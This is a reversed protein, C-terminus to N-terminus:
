GQLLEVGGNEKDKWTSETREKQEGKEELSKDGRFSRGGDGSTIGM